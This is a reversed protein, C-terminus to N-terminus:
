MYQVVNRYCWFFWFKQGHHIWTNKYNESYATIVEM